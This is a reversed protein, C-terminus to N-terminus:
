QRRKIKCNRGSQDITSNEMNKPDHKVFSIDHVIHVKWNYESSFTEAFEICKFKRELEHIDSSFSDFEDSLEM